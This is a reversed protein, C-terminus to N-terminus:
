TFFGFAHLRSSQTTELMGPFSTGKAPEPRGSIAGMQDQNSSDEEDAVERPYRLLTAQVGVTIDAYLPNSRTM